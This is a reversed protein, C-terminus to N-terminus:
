FLIDLWDVKKTSGALQTQVVFEGANKYAALQEMNHQSSEALMIGLIGIVGIVLEAVLKSGRRSFTHRNNRIFM